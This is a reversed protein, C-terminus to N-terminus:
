RLGREVDDWFWDLHALRNAFALERLRRAEVMDSSTTLFDLLNVYNVAAPGVANGIIQRMTPDYRQQIGLVSKVGVPAGLMAHTLAETHNSVDLFPAVVGAREVAGYLKQTFNRTNYGPANTQTSRVYDVVAGLGVMAVMGMVADRKEGQLGALLM